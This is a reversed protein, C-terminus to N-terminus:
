KLVELMKKGLLYQVPLLQVPMVTEVMERAVLLLLQGSNGAPKWFPYSLLMKEM